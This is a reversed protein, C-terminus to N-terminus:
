TPLLTDVERILRTLIETTSGEAIAARSSGMWLSVFDPNEQKKAEKRLVATLKNQYPYPLINSFSDFLESFTTKLGRAYRGSFSKTLVIDSESALRLREKEFPLLASETSRLLLTGLQFGQAGLTQAARLTEANYIGGAYILPATVAERVQPLLSFGGIEPINALSFSGRHGGAEYGQVCIIDIGSNELLIAEAVSTCTGILTCGAAKLKDISAPDLNGFTFSVIKCQEEIIADVQAHYDNLYLEDITPLTIAFGHEAALAAIRDRIQEYQKRLADTVPLIDFVFLNVAFPQATLTRTNRIADICQDPPLDGLPLSGLVKAKNAAAVMEPTSVHLMPAQILPYAIGLQKTLENKWNM